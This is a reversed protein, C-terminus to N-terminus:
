NKDKLYQLRLEKMKAPPYTVQAYNLIQSYTLGDVIGQHIEELQAETYNDKQLKALLISESEAPSQRNHNQEKSVPQKSVGEGVAAAQGRNERIENDDFIKEPVPNLRFIDEMRIDLITVPEGEAKKQYYDMSKQSLIQVKSDPEHIQHVYAEGDGDASLKFFPHAFTNFKRDLIPDCGRIMLICKNNDLKRTEEVTLLERGLVDFNRSSSGNRGRTEGSSRKDITAKGLGESIYKHTSLENGGLYILTDCNGPITEWTDKFLAKIQALNQIIIVSSIERSRMTSLASCFYEKPLAINCFEDMILTVHIPLRGGCHFDAQYYLEQILQSFLMGVLFNYSTDSDPIVCFLVTKQDPNGDIGLGIEAIDMEDKDLIRLIEPNQLLGLRANASIIISRVTDGVGRIVKNYQIVAPHDAGHKRELRRFRRDLHSMSGDGTVEAENLLKLVMRFNREEPGCEMWVYLFIAQLYLSEAKEWFPDNSQANEPTTNAILNTVLRIIDTESRIYRFPNYGNSHAMEILNLVRIRYGFAKLLGGCSRLIESKPDTVVYSSTMGYLLPKVCYLTKGAGSGGIVLTNLNIKMKRTNMSMRVNQSLIRNKSKDKDVFRKTIQKPDAFKATGFEKGHMFNRQSTVYLLIGLTYIFLGIVIAKPSNSNWYDAMPKALVINFQKMLYNIDRGPQYCYNFLYGAYGAFIGGILYFLLSSKSKQKVSM